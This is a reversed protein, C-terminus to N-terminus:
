ELGYHISKRSRVRTNLGSLRIFMAYAKSCGIKEFIRDLSIYISVVSTNVFKLRWEPSDISYIRKRNRSSILYWWFLVM